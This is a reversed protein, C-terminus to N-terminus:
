RAEASQLREGEGRRKQFPTSEVVAHIFASMRYRKRGSKRAIEEIACEDYYELGRGLAYTILKGAFCRVFQDRQQKVLIRQLEDAGDFGEGTVLTGSADIQFEGERDRWAGVADFNELGFGIPDMREHCSSCNPDDRHQVMRERLTGTLVAQEGTELEPVGPPPPPPPTGLLNDLVWKGRKVPSTRTPNSTLTLISAHTLLGGRQTGKLSVRRFEDGEVGELGYHRALPENVFTYDADLLEIVSRNERLIHGFFMETEHRMATQLDQDFTPFLEPDPTMMEVNRLQLWQGAFNDVLAQSRPDALLRDVQKRLNRRLRGKEALALLEDDPTSSWLFYSLRTALAFEDITHVSRPNDPDPQVEGRFIFHPSTLVAQLALRISGEHEEGDERAVQYIEMLRDVERENASRRFARKTFSIIIERPDDSVLLRERPGGPVHNTLARDIVQEAADLYREFLVPSISLADGINDFGHGSDDAPFDDAPQFDVGVLDRITNNYEARNLRRITVRGPDPNDCDLPFLATQIWNMVADRQALAPQPKRSPPMQGARLQALVRAFDERGARAADADTFQSLDLDAEPVNGTHCDFCFEELVPAVTATFAADSGEGYDAAALIPASLGLIVVATLTRLSPLRKYQNDSILSV